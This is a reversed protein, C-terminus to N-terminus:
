QAWSVQEISSPKIFVHKEPGWDRTDIELYRILWYRTDLVFDELYGFECDCAKVMYDKVESGRHLHIDEQARNQADQWHDPQDDRYPREIPMGALPDVEWYAPWDYYHYYKAEYSRSIPKQMDLPPSNKVQERTLEIYIMKDKDRVEGVAVPTILVRRNKLWEGTNVVLYRVAWTIDDFYFDEVHGIEGDVAMLTYHELETAAQLLEMLELINPSNNMPIEAM